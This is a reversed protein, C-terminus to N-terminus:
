AESSEDDYPLNVSEDVEACGLGGQRIHQRWPPPSNKKIRGSKGFRGM